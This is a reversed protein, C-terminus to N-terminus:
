TGLLGEIKSSLISADTLGENRYYIYGNQDVIVLTPIYMIDYKDFVKEESTDCAIVWTMNHVEMFQRLASESDSSSGISIILVESGGYNKNIQALHSMETKCPECWTAFFDLVVVKGKLNELSVGNGNLDILTFIPALQRSPAPQTNQWAAYVGIVLVILVLFVIGLVKSRSWGKSKKPERERRLREAEAAKQQKIAARRRREKWSEKKKKKTM